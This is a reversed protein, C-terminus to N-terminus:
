GCFILSLSYLLSSINIGTAADPMVTAVMQSFTSSFLMYSWMLLFMLGSRENLASTTAANQYMGVLYYWIVFQIVALVTQSPIESLVNSLVFVDWRYTRSPQEALEYLTRHELFRPIILQVLSSHVTFLLFVSFIQNQVGQLNNTSMYFSM